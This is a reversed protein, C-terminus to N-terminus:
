APPSPPMSGKNGQLEQDRALSPSMCETNGPLEPGQSEKAPSLPRRGTSEQLEPDRSPYPPRYEKNDQLELVQSEKAPDQANQAHPPTASPQSIQAPKPMNSTPAGGAESNQPSIIPSSCTKVIIYKRPWLIFTGKADVLKEIGMDEDPYDLDKFERGERIKTVEVMACEAPVPRGHHIHSHMMTAKAVKITRSTRGKVYMPTYPTPDKIDDMLYKDKDRNPASGASSLAIPQQVTASLDLNIESSPMQVIYQPNKRM